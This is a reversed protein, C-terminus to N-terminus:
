LSKMYEVLAWKSDDDLDTGWIHGRNSNGPMITIGDEKMVQFKSKGRNSQFGVHRADIERGGVWFSLPRDEPRALLQWLNPVSGNHLYPATAWIGNLPRAKYVLGTLDLEENFGRPAQNPHYQIDRVSDISEAQEEVYDELFEKKVEETLAAAELVEAPHKLVLGIVGDVAIDLARTTEGFEKGVLIDSKSGNLILTKAEHNAVSWAMMHDTGVTKLPTKIVKYHDSEEDFPIVQHCGACKAKFIVEGKASLEQDIPPLVTKSWRPSQLIKVHGELQGLGHFDVTSAYSQKIGFLQKLWNSEKITLGGFVGVVEGINRVLPGVVPTNKASANWQVYDSQHTGWLFPYSVPATPSNKNTLDDLAFASGANEINGFADLRAWSTFDSPYDLPLANVEQRQKTKTAADQLDKRLRKAAAKSYSQGLVRLSFRNFKEDDDHTVQLAEVIRDFFLVFNALTPAGDVLYKTGKFNIQNTHCAACTLGMYSDKASKAKTMAFGIPLGSPNDKSTAMPVYGLMNMHDVNRFFESNDPQELWTFWSYPMIQSGQSTFWFTNRQDNTWGQEIGVREPITGDQTVYKIDPPLVLKESLNCCVTFLALCLFTVIGKKM